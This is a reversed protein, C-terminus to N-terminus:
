NCVNLIGNDWITRYRTLRKETNLSTAIGSNNLNWTNECKSCTAIGNSDFSLRSIQDCEPCALDYAWVSLDDNNFTPTGIIFGALGFKFGEQQVSTLDHTYQNGDSDIIFLQSNHNRVSIFREPTTVQNFPAISIDCIYSATCLHQTCVFNKTAGYKIIGGLNFFARYYYTTGYELRVRGTAYSDLEGTITDNSTQPWLVSQTLEKEFRESTSFEFGYYGFSMEFKPAIASNNFGEEIKSLDQIYGTLTVLYDDNCEVDLTEVLPTDWNFSFTKIEGYYIMLQNIYYVRYYYNRGPQVIFNINFQDESYKSAFKVRTTNDQSFTEDASCEIGYQYDLAVNEIGSIRGSLTTVFMSGQVADLTTVQPGTVNEKKDENDCSFIGMFLIPSILLTIIRRM